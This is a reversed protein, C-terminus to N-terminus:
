RINHEVSLSMVHPSIHAALNDMMLVKIDSKPINEKELHVLFVKEFFTEFEAMNFWGGKNATFVSGPPGGAAWSAYFHGSQSKYVTMTPLLVGDARCCFMVSFCTKSHDRVQEAYRVGKKFVCQESGPDDRMATEDCNFIRSPPVDCLEKELNVFYAKIEDPSVAARCRRINTPKRIVIKDKHRALFGRMWGRGPKNNKFATERRKDLYSKVM